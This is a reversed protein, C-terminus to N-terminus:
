PLKERLKLRGEPTGIRRLLELYKSHLREAVERRGGALDKGQGPDSPLYYLEFPVREGGYILCWEGDTVTSYVVQGQDDPLKPSSVAVERVKLDEGSILPMISRGHIGEPPEAGGLEALTPMLDVLQVLAGCRRGGEMGPAKVILPIHAVEGYLPWGKEPELVTHKGVLGHEGLYFGHDSTFIVATEEWIGLDDLKEFFWGLWKDLMTVVGAYLARTHRLEAESMYGVRDYRPLIVEEGEYGPDYREVYWRPPDWLEHVSFVDLFLLFDEHRYNRELWDIAENVTRPIPWDREYLWDAKAKLYPVMLKEPQRCKEPSCPWRLEVHDTARFPDSQHGRVFRYASFGRHYNMGPALMQYHDTILATVYGRDRLMEQVTIVGGPLPAWGIDQFVYRGAMVEARAPMTPFSGIYAGDFIVSEEALADLNPTRIWGDGYAGLFDRRLTDCIIFVIRM